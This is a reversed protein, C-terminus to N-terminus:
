IWLKCAGRILVNLWRQNLTPGADWQNLRMQEGPCITAESSFSEIQWELSHWIPDKLESAVLNGKFNYINLFLVLTGDHTMMTGVTIIM